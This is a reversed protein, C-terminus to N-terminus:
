VTPNEMRESVKAKSERCSFEQHKGTVATIGVCGSLTLVCFAISIFRFMKESREQTAANPSKASGDM